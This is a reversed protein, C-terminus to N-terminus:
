LGAGARRALTNGAPPAAISKLICALKMGWIAEQQETSLLDNRIEIMVSSLGRSQGHRDLTHYVRDGPSYPENAGVTLTEDRRLAALMPASLSEDHDFLVGIHWPRLAGRYVPTFSHVGIVAVPGSVRKAEVAAAICAHFPEYVEGVRRQREAEDLGANGPIDTDESRLPIADFMAPDRNCDIVLRSVRCSVLPADLERALVRAVGLAGPDWAIHRTLDAATLGLDGLRGPIVNSAHECVIVYRGAGDANEVLAAGNGVAWSAEPGSSGSPNAELM